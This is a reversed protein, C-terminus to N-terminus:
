QIINYLGKSFVINIVQAKLENILSDECLVFEANTKYYRMIELCFM